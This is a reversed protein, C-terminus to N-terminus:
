KLDESIINDYIFSAMKMFCIISRFTDGALTLPNEYSYIEGDSRICILKEGNGNSIEAYFIIIKEYKISFNYNITFRTDYKKELENSFEEIAKIQEEISLKIKM